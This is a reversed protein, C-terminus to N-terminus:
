VDWILKNHKGFGMICNHLNISYVVIMMNRNNTQTDFQKIYPNFLMNDLAIIMYIYMGFGFLSCTM